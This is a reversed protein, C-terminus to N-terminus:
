SSAAELFPAVKFDRREAVAALFYDQLSGGIEAVRGSAVATGHNLIMFRECVDQADALLHSTMLITM